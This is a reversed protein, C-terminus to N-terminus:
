PLFQVPPAAVPEAQPGAAPQGGVVGAQGRGTQRVVPPCRVPQPM